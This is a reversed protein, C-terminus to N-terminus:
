FDTLSDAAGVAVMGVGAGVVFPSPENTVPNPGSGATIPSPGHCDRKAM